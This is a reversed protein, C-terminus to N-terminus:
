GKKIWNIDRWPCESVTYEFLFDLPGIWGFNSNRSRLEDAEPLLLCVMIFMDILDRDILEM